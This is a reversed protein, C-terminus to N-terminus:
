LCPCRVDGTPNAVSPSRSRTETSQRQPQEQQQLAENDVSDRTVQIGPTPPPSKIGINMNATVLMTARKEWKAEDEENRAVGDGGIEPLNEPINASSSARNRGFPIRSQRNQANPSAASSHHRRLRVSLGRSPQTPSLLPPPSPRTPDGPFSPPEISEQTTTTTRLFSFSPVDPSLTPASTTLGEEHAGDKKKKKLIDKLPM